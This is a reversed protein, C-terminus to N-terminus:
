LSCLENECDPIRKDHENVRKQLTGAKDRSRLRPSFKSLEEDLGSFGLEQCLNRLEEFNSETIPVESEGDVQDLRINVVQPSAKCQLTYSSAKAIEPDKFLSLKELCRRPLRVETGDGCM